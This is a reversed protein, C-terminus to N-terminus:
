AKEYGLVGRAAREKARAQSWHLAEELKTLVLATERSKFPGEQFGRLPDILATMAADHTIGPKSTEVNRPGKQFQLFGVLVSGGGEQPLLDRRFEYRHPVGNLDEDSAEIRVLDNLGLGDHHSTITKM